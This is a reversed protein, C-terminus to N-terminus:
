QRKEEDWLQGSLPDVALGFSNRVGYAFVKQINAGVEGGMDAGFQFFPNDKPTTGDDNLRLIVGTLHANDPAPGGFLDDHIGDRFTGITVNQM